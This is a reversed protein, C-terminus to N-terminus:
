VGILPPQAQEIRKLGEFNLVSQALRKVALECYEEKIEIGIAKRNLNKAALLTTGSGMFPDIVQNDSFVWVLWEVHQLRRPSPHPLGDDPRATMRRGDHNRGNHREFLKDSRTSTYKGPLVQRGPIFAPPIGFAFGVDGTYLIRGKYSPCAYDLWCTRLYPWKDPIATLFRPDSDCGLQVVIREAGALSLCMEHFLGAPNAINFVPLSNPWVPDTIVTEVTGLEPLVERCDGCYITIGAEKDQYYPKPLTM